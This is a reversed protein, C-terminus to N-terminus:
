LKLPKFPLFQAGGSALSLLNSDQYASFAILSKSGAALNELWMSGNVILKHADSNTNEEDFAKSIDTYIFDIDFINKKIYAQIMFLQKGLYELHPINHQPDEEKLIKCPSFDILKIQKGNACIVLNNLQFDQYELKIKGLFNFIDVVQAAVTNIHAAEIYPLNKAFFDRVTQDALEFVFILSQDENFSGFYKIVNYHPFLSVYELIEREDEILKKERKEYEPMEPCFPIEIKKLAVLCNNICKAKYVKGHAGSGIHERDFFQVMSTPKHTKVDFGHFCAGLDKQDSEDIDLKVTKTSALTLPEM